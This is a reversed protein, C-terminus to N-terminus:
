RNGGAYIGPNVDLVVRMPGALADERRCVWKEHHIGEVINGDEIVDGSEYLYAALNRLFHVVEDPQLNKCHFQLDPLGIVTLGLTDFLLEDTGDIRFMRINLGGDLFHNEAHYWHPQQYYSRSTFSQSHPWYIGLCDPFLELLLDAYSAMIGYEEKMPLTAAMMNAALLAYRCRPLLAEKEEEQCAHFNSIIHADWLERDFESMGFLLLQSPYEQKKEQDTVLHDMLAFGAMDTAKRPLAPNEGMYEVHGFHQGMRDMFVEFSPMEVPEEFLPMFTYVAQWHDAFGDRRQQPTMKQGEKM